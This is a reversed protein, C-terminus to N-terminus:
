SKFMYMMNKFLRKVLAKNGAQKQQAISMIYLRDGVKLDFPLWSLLACMLCHAIYKFYINNVVKAVLLGTLKRRRNKSGRRHLNVSVHWDVRPVDMLTIRLYNIAPILANGPTEFIELNSNSEVKSHNVTIMIRLSIFLKTLSIVPITNLRIAFRDDSIYHAEAVFRMNSEDSPEACTSSSGGVYSIGDIIPAADGLDVEEIAAQRRRIKRIFNKDILYRVSPWITSLTQNIWDCREIEIKTQSWPLQEYVQQADTVTMSLDTKRQTKFVYKPHISKILAILVILTGICLLSHLIQTLSTDITSEYIHSLFMKVYKFIQFPLEVEDYLKNKLNVIAVIYFRFTASDMSHSTACVPCLTDSLARRM